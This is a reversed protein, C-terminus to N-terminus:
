RHTYAGDGGGEDDNSGSRAGGSESAMSLRRRQGRQARAHRRQGPQRGHGAGPRRPTLTAAWSGSDDDALAATGGHPHSGAGAAAAAGVADAAAERLADEFFDDSADEVHHRPRPSPPPRAGPLRPLMSVDGGGVGSRM